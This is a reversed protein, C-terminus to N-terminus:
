IMYKGFDEPQLNELIQKWKNELNSKDESKRSLTIRKSKHIIEDAVLIPADFRLSLILADTPRADIALEKGTHNIYATACCIDNTRRRIEIRIVKLDVLNLINELLDHTMPRSFRIGKLESALITAEFLGIWIPLMREGDLEKLVVVPTQTSSDVALTWVTMPRLIIAEGPSQNSACM